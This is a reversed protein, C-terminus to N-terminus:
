LTEHDKQIEGVIFSKEGSSASEGEATLDSAKINIGLFCM